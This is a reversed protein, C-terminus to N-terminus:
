LEGRMTVDQARCWAIFDARRSPTAIWIFWRHMIGHTM